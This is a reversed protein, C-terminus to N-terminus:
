SQITSFQVLRFLATPTGDEKTLQASWRPAPHECIIDGEAALPPAGVLEGDDAAPNLIKSQALDTSSPRDTDALMM